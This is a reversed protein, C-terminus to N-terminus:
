DQYKHPHYKSTLCGGLSCCGEEAAYHGGCHWMFQEPVAGADSRVFLRFNWVEWVDAFQPPFLRILTEGVGFRM